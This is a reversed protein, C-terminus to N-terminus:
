ELGIEPGLGADLGAIEDLATIVNGKGAFGPASIGAAPLDRWPTQACSGWGESTYILYKIRAQSL